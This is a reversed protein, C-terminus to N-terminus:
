VSKMSLHVKAASGSKLGYNGCGAPPM